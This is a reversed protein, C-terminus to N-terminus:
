GPGSPEAGGAAREVTRRVAQALMEPVEEQLFHGATPARVVEADPLRRRHRELATGLIPDREGWVLSVPGRFGVLWTEGRALEPLSPHRQSDPVMRALGLATERRDARALPWRYARAVPGRISTRDGQVRHLLRVPFGLGVFLLRGLVPLRAVRHFTTGRPRRPVLVATNALVVGAVHVGAESLRAGLGTAMPGGWDQGVLLVPGPALAALWEALAELHRDLRHEAAAGLGDSLGCGLLDPAIWRLEPAAAIVRRWLFSWTPNGHLAVVVPAPSRHRPPQDVFHLLRGRDAGHELRFARREVPFLDHLWDPLPPAPVFPM